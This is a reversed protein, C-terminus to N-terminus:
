GVNVARGAPKNQPAGERPNKETSSKQQAPQTTTTEEPTSEGFINRVGLTWPSVAQPGAEQEADVEQQSPAAKTQTPQKQVPKKEIAKGSLSDIMTNIRETESILAQLLAKANNDSINAVVFEKTGAKLNKFYDELSKVKNDEMTLDELNFGFMHRMKSVLSNIQAQESSTEPGKPLENILAKQAKRMLNIDTYEPEFFEIGLSLAENKSKITPYKEIDDLKEAIMNKYNEVEGTESTGFFTEYWGKAPQKRKQKQKETAAKEMILQRKLFINQEIISLMSLQEDTLNMHKIQNIRSPSPIKDRSTLERVIGQWQVSDMVKSGQSAAGQNLQGETMQEQAARHEAKYKNLMEKRQEVTLGQEQQQTAPAQVGPSRKTNGVQKASVGGVILLSIVFMVNKFM